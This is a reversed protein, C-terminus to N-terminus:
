ASLFRRVVFMMAVKRNQITTAKGPRQSGRQQQSLATGHPRRGAIWDRTWTASGRTTRGGM